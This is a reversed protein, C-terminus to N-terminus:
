KVLIASLPQNLYPVTTISKMAESALHATVREVEDITLGRTNLVTVKIEIDGNNDSAAIKRVRKM